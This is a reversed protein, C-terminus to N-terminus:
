GRRRRGRRPATGGAVEWTGAFAQDLVAAAPGAIEVATDRWPLGGPLDEGTWECGICLGGMVARSGDAVVLKRHNRSFNSVLDVALAAPVPAGRRGGARLYRWYSRPTRSAARARRVAGARSRGGARRRVLAEAFRRGAADARIIYNEFHIWRRPAPSSTSCRRTPTPATSSCAFRTARSRAPRRRARNIASAVSQEADRVPAPAARDRRRRPRARARASPPRRARLRHARRAPRGAGRRGPGRGRPERRPRVGQGQAEEQRQSVELDQSAAPRGCWRAPWWSAACSTWPSSPGRWRRTAPCAPTTRTAWSPGGARGRAAGTAPSSACAKPRISRPPPTPPTPFASTTSTTCCGSWAGPRRMRARRADAMARMAVEVAYM